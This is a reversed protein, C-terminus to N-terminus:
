RMRKPGFITRLVRNNFIRLRCEERLTLSWTKCGHLAVPLIITRHIKVKVNKSLLSPGTVDYQTLFLTQEWEQRSPRDPVENTRDSLLFEVLGGHTSSQATSSTWVGLLPTFYSTSQTNHQTLRVCASQKWTGTNGHRFRPFSFQQVHCYLTINTPM